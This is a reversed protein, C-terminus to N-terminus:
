LNQNRDEALIHYLDLIVRSVCLFTLYSICLTLVINIHPSKINFVLVFVLIFQQKSDKSVSSDRTM